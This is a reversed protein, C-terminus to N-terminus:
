IGCTVPICFPMRMPLRRHVTVTGTTLTGSLSGGCRGPERGFVERGCISRAAPDCFEVGDLLFSYTCDKPPLPELRSFYLDGIRHEETFDLQCFPTAEGPHYLCLSLRSTPEAEPQQNKVSGSNVAPTGPRQDVTFATRTIQKVSSEASCSEPKTEQSLADEALSSLAVCFNVGGHKVVAGLPYPEGKM